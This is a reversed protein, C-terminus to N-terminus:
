DSSTSARDRRDSRRGAPCKEIKSSSFSSSTEAPFVWDWWQGLYSVSAVVRPTGWVWWLLSVVQNWGREYAIVLLLFIPVRIPTLLVRIIKGLIWTPHTVAYLPNLVLRRYVRSACITNAVRCAM